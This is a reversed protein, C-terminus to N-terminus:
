GVIWANADGVVVELRAVIWELANMVQQCEVLELNSLSAIDRNRTVQDLRVLTQEWLWDSSDVHEKQEPTPSYKAWTVAWEFDRRLCLHHDVISSLRALSFEDAKM